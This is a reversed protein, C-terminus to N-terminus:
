VLYEKPWLINRSALSLCKMLMLAIADLIAVKNRCGHVLSLFKHENNNFNIHFLNLTEM